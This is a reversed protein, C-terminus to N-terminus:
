EYRLADIPNMKAAKSAPYFGFFVGFVMSFSVSAAITAPSATGNIGMLVSMLKGLLLGFGVGVASGIMCIIIAEILFQVLINGNTAGLAKRTGIERTRETISVVMINMVGIGGVILSIAAIAMLVLKMIGIVSGITNFTDELVLVDAKYADNDKYFSSNLSARIDDALKNLDTDRKAIAEFQEFGTEDLPTVAAQNYPILAPEGTAGFLMGQMMSEKEKHYVGIVTYCSLDNNKRCELTKGLANEVSGYIAEAKKEPILVVAKGKSYEESSIGRGAIVSINGKLSLACPNVGCVNLKETGVKMAGLDYNLSIGELRDSFEEELKSFTKVSFEDSKKIERVSSDYSSEDYIDKQGKQIVFCYVKRSDPSSMMDVTYRKMGDGLIMIAIVAAIGIVIGLMTLLSRMKNSRLESLALLINDKLM